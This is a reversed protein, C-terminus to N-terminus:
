KAAKTTPERKVDTRPIAPPVDQVADATIVIQAEKAQQKEDALKEHAHDYLALLSMLWSLTSEAGQNENVGQSHLGDCCGGTAFDYLSTHLDNDGLFWGLCRYARDIWVPEGTVHYAEICADIMGCAELPQQDFRAKEEGRPYWGVCGVPAFHGDEATQVEYLWNLVRLGMEIIKNDFMWQGSLLLAQPLRANGYTLIDDFWVWDDAVEQEFREYLRCALEDRVRRAHADGSFRRLYQHIGILSYAWARPHTFATCAPLARQFLSVALTLHGRSPARAVAVGLAWLSRGHSDESGIKELWQRDYSMFNRFRGRESSFAHEIFGLYTSTLRTLEASRDDHAYDQAMLVAILARANDDVCYGHGREPVNSKAHQLIGTDDTITRLHDLKLDTLEPEKDKFARDKYLPRPSSQREARINAFLDLYNQAVQSWVMCRTHTYARKRMAHRQVEHDFLDNVAAALADIDKFPVLRGRGDGLMEEAYWYPTSVTAKGAGLAYALTGSVNQAENVYPTVYVDASGLFECLENLEVFRNHFIVYDGVGLEAARRQLSMRYGEGMTDKVHPHTAGLVIYVADPNAEIVKPMAEIMNEIGKGPGLLGFTLIVKKGEVGFLDKYFAPDVFPVNPIGHPIFHIKDQPVNYIETLFQQSRHSMVVLRDSVEALDLTAKHQGPTPDRLVTHMTTVVPMRLRRLLEFLHVGDPGGFIGYEHQVSVVDVHSLNLFDAAMRYEGLRSQNIEFWVRPPYRYGEPRDDMAVARCNIKPAAEALAEALDSTFTAIGCRRPLYTGILAVTKLSKWKGPSDDM